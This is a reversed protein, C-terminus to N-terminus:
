ILDVGGELLGLTQERYATVLEDWKINRFAPNEVQPSISLTKNTPGLAGAVFRTGGFQTEYDDCAKRAIVASEKNLRYVLHQCDYDAQAITTASFTNTEVIDAGSKLYETHIGYIIKPQTISLIDNNGKLSKNHDVLETGRYDAEELKHRQIMTGMAGDIILIREKLASLLEHSRIGSM